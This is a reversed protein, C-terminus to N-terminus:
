AMVFCRSLIDLEWHTFKVVGNSWWPVFGGRFPEYLLNALTFVYMKCCYLLCWAIGLSLLRSERQSWSTPWASCSMKSGQPGPISNQIHRCIKAVNTCEVTARGSWLRGHVLEPAYSTISFPLINLNQIRTQIVLPHAILPFSAQYQVCLVTVGLYDVIVFCHTIRWARLTM